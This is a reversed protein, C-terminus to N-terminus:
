NGPSFYPFYSMSLSSFSSNTLVHMYKAVENIKTFMQKHEIKSCCFTHWNPSSICEKSLVFSCTWQYRTIIGHSPIFPTDEFPEAPWALIPCDISQWVYSKTFSIVVNSGTIVGQWTVRYAGSKTNTSNHSPKPSYKSIRFIILLLHNSWSSASHIFFRWM